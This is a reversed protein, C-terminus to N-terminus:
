ESAGMMGSSDAIDINDDGLDEDCLWWWLVRSCVIDGRGEAVGNLMGAEVVIVVVDDEDVEGEGGGDDDVDEM